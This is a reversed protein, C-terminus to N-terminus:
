YKTRGCLTSTTEQQNRKKVCVPLADHLPVVSRRVEYQNEDREDQEDKTTSVSHLELFMHENDLLLRRFSQM